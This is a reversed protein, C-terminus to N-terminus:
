DVHFEQHIIAQAYNRIKNKKLFKVQRPLIKAKDDPFNGRIM